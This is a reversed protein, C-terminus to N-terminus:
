VLTQIRPATIIVNVWCDAARASTRFRRQKTLNNHERPTKFTLHRARSRRASRLPSLTSCHLSSRVAPSCSAMSYWPTLLAVSSFVGGGGLYLARIVYAHFPPSKQSWGKTYILRTLILNGFKAFRTFLFLHTSLKSCLTNTFCLSWAWIHWRQTLLYSMNM